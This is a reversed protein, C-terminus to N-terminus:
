VCSAGLSSRITILLKAINAHSIHWITRRDWDNGHPWFRVTEIDTGTAIVKTAASCRRFDLALRSPGAREGGRVDVPHERIGPEGLAVAIRPHYSNRFAAILREPTEGMTRYTIEQAFENGEGLAERVIKEAHNDDKPFILTKPTHSRGPYIKPLPSTWAPLSSPLGNAYRASQIEVGTLTAGPKKAEIVGAAKGDVYVLYDAYGYVPDGEGRGQRVLPFPASSRIEGRAQGTGRHSLSDDRRESGEAESEGSLPSPAGLPFERIAVGRSAHIDAQKYDVVSWGASCLLRDIEERADDESPVM